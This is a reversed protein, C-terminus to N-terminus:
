LVSVIKTVEVGWNLNKTSDFIKLRTLLLSFNIHQM